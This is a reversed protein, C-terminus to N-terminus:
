LKRPSFVGDEQYKEMELKKEVSVVAYSRGGKCQWVSCGYDM